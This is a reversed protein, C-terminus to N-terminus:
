MDRGSDWLPPIPSSKVRDAIQSREHPETPGFIHGLVFKRRREVVEAVDGPAATLKSLLELVEQVKAEGRWRYVIRRLPEPATSALRWGEDKRVLYRRPDAAIFEAVAAIEGRQNKAENELTRQISASAIQDETLGAANALDPSLIWRGDKVKTILSRQEELLQLLLWPSNANSSSQAPERTAETAARRATDKDERLAQGARRIAREIAEWTEAAIMEPVIAPRHKTFIARPPSAEAPVVPSTPTPMAPGPIPAKRMPRISKLWGYAFGSRKLPASPYDRITALAPVTLSERVKLKTIKFARPPVRPHASPPVVLPPRLAQHGGARTLVFPRPQMPPVTIYKPTEAAQPIQSRKPPVVAASSFGQLPVTISPLMRAMTRLETRGVNLKFLHMRFAPMPAVPVAPLHVTSIRLNAFRGVLMRERLSQAARTLGDTLPRVSARPAHLMDGSVIKAPRLMEINVRTPVQGMKAVKCAISPVRPIAISRAIRSAVRQEIEQLRALREDERRLYDDIMAAKSRLVREHNEENDAVFEGARARRTKEEYLKKQTEIPLGRAAHSLGTYVDCDGRTFSMETSLAAFRERLFRMGERGDLETRLSESVLWEYAVVRELPRWSWNVHIHWNREDGNPPPEHLAIAYPLGYQGIREKAWAEGVELMQEPTWRYDMALVATNLVKAGKQASRNVQELHDFGCVVEEITEGVNSRFMPAGREDLAAGRWIYKTMRMAVGPRSTRSSYYKADFFVGIRNQRDRIFGGYSPLAQMTRSPRVARPKPPKNKLETTPRAVTRIKRRFFRAISRDFEREQKRLKRIARATERDGSKIVWEMERDAKRAIARSSTGLKKKSFSAASSVTLARERGFDDTFVADVYQHTKPQPTNRVAARSSKPKPM